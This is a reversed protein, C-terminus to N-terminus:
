LYRRLADIRTKIESLKDKLEDSAIMNLVEEPNRFCREAPTEKLHM